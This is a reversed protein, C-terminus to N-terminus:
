AGAATLAPLSVPTLWGHRDRLRGSVIGFFDEQLQLTVPGPRGEGVTIRDVSRVPTIEAATGTLFMEDALYLRDRPLVEFRVQIGRDRALALVTDRTIGGLISSTLPPTWIEGRDVLFLNEGTGESVNGHTDLMISEPFGLEAAEMRAFQNNVYQGGIKGLPAMTGPAFRRWSSVCVDVGKELAEKGLYRGWRIAFMSVAVPVSRADLSFGGSARFAIPRLYCSELRNRRVLEVCVNQLQEATYDGLDMRMLKASGLWRLIHEPLRFIAPGRPTEYARIGEFVSSGYHLAHTTIHVSANEWKVWDGNMWIWDTKDIAM